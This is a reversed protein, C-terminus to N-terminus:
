YLINMGMVDDEMTELVNYSHLGHPFVHDFKLKYQVPLLSLRKGLMIIVM